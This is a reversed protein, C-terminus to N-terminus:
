PQSNDDENSDEEVVVDSTHRKAIRSAYWDRNSELSDLIEQGDPFVLETWTEWLPHVVYDIFSVQWYVHCCFPARKVCNQVSAHRPTCPPSNEYEKLSCQGTHSPKM